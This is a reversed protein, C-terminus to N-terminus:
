KPTEASKVQGQTAPGHNTKRKAVSVVTFGGNTNRTEITKTEETGSAGPVVIETMKNMVKVGPNPDSPDLQEVEQETRRTGTDTERATTSRESLRLKGDRALGPLDLSYTERTTVERGDVDTEKAVERSFPTLRGYSDRRSVREESAHHSGDETSTSERVVAVQWGDPIPTKKRLGAVDASSQQLENTQPAVSGSLAPVYVTTKTERTNPRINTKETVEYQVIQFNGNVDRDSVKRVVNFEGTASSQKKEDIIRVLTKQGNVDTRYTRVISHSTTPSEQITETETDLYAQYRSEPGSVEVIQRDLTQRGSKIHSDTVHVPNSYTNPASIVTKATWSEDTDRAPAEPVQACVLSSLSVIILMLSPGSFCRLVNM